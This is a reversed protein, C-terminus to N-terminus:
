DISDPFNGKDAPKHVTKGLQDIGRLILASAPNKRAWSKCEEFQMVNGIRRNVFEWTDESNPSQDGLWYLLSSGYVGSLILRKTYWNIDESPDNLSNWILDVTTWLSAVGHYSNAPMSFLAVAKSVADKHEYVAEIRWQIAKVIRGRFRIGILEESQIKEVMIKDARRNFELALDIGRKPCFKVAEEVSIGIAKAAAAFTCYGWGDVGALPLAATLLQETIDDNFNASANSKVMNVGQNTKIKHGNPGIMFENVVNM